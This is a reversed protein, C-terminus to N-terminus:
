GVFIVFSVFFLTTFNHVTIVINILCKKMDVFEFIFSLFQYLVFSILVIGEVEEVMSANESAQM